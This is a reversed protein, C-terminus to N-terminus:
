RASVSILEPPVMNRPRHVLDGDHAIDLQDPPLPSVYTCPTSTYTPRTENPCLQQAQRPIM